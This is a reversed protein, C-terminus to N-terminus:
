ADSSDDGSSSESFGRLGNLLSSLDHHKLEGLGDKKDEDSSSHGFDFNALVDDPIMDHLMKLNDGMSHESDSSGFQNDLAHLLSKVSDADVSESDDSGFNELAGLMASIDTTEKKPGDSDAMARLDGLGSALGKEPKPTKSSDVGDKTRERPVSKERSTEKISKRNHSKKKDGTSRKNDKSSRETRATHLKPRKATDKLDKKKDDEIGDRPSSKREAEIRYRRPSELALTEYREIDAIKAVSKSKISSLKLLVESVTQPHWISNYEKHILLQDPDVKDNNCSQLYSLLKLAVPSINALDVSIICALALLRDNVKSTFLKMQIVILHIIELLSDHFRKPSTLYSDIFFNIIDIACDETTMQHAITASLKTFSSVRIAICEPTRNVNKEGNQIDLLSQYVAVGFQSNKASFYKLLNPLGTEVCCRYGIVRESDDDTMNSTQGQALFYYFFPVLKTLWLVDYNEPGRNCELMEYFPHARWKFVTDLVSGLHHSKFGELLLTDLSCPAYWTRAIEMYLDFTKTDSELQQKSDLIVSLLKLTAYYIRPFVAVSINLVAVCIWFFQIVLPVPQANIHRSISDFLLEIRVFYLPIDSDLGATQIHNLTAVQAPSQEPTSTLKVSARKSLQGSKSANIVQQLKQLSICLNASLKNLLSVPCSVNLSNYIEVAKTSLVNDKELAWTLVSKGWNEEFNDIKLVPPCDVLRLFLKIFLPVPLPQVAWESLLGLDLETALKKADVTSNPGQTTQTPWSPFINAVQFKLKLYNAENIALLQRIVKMNEIRMNSAGTISRAAFADLPREYIAYLAQLVTSLLKVLSHYENDWRLLIYTLIHHLHSYIPEIDGSICENLLNINDMRLNLSEIRKGTSALSEQLGGPLQSPRLTHFNAQALTDVRARTMIGELTINKVLIAIINKKNQKSQDALDVVIRRYFDFHDHCKAILTELIIGSNVKHVSIFSRWLKLVAAPLFGTKNASPVTIVYFLQLILNVYGDETKALTSDMELDINRVWPRLLKILMVQHTHSINPFRDLAEKIVGYSQEKCITSIYDTVTVASEMGREILNSSFRDGLHRIKQGMAMRIVPNEESLWGFQVPLLRMIVEFAKSRLNVDQHSLYFLTLFILRVSYKKVLGHFQLSLFDTAADPTSSAEIADMAFNAALSEKMDMAIGNLTVRGPEPLFQDFIAMAFAHASREASHQKNFQPLPLSASSADVTGGRTLPHAQPTIPNGCEEVHINTSTPVHTPTANSFSNSFFCNFVSEDEFYKALTWRLLKIQHELEIRPIWPEVYSHNLQGPGGILQPNSMARHSMMEPSVAGAHLAAASSPILDHKHIYVGTGKLLGSMALGLLAESASLRTRRMARELFEAFLKKKPIETVKALLRSYEAMDLKSRASDTDHCTWDVLFGALDKHVQADLEFKKHIPTTDLYRQIPGTQAYPPLRHLANFFNRVISSNEVFYDRVCLASLKSYNEVFVAHMDSIFLMFINCVSLARDGAILKNFGKNQSIKHLVKVVACRHKRQEKPKLSSYWTKLASLIFPTASWATASLAQIRTTIIAESDNQLDKWSENIFGSLKIAIQSAEGVSSLTLAAKKESENSQTSQTKEPETTKALEIFPWSSLAMVFINKSRVSPPAHLSHTYITTELLLKRAMVLSKSLVPLADVLLHGLSELFCNWLFDQETSSAISEITAHLPQQINVKYHHVSAKASLDQLFLSRAQQLLYQEHQSILTAIRHYQNKMPASKTLNMNQHFLLEAVELIDLATLRIEFSPSTLGYLAVAEVMSIMDVFIEEDFNLDLRLEVSSYWISSWLDLLMLLQAYLFYQISDRENLYKNLMQVMMKIVICRLDARQIIIKQLFHSVISSIDEDVHLVLSGIFAGNPLTMMAITPLLILSDLLEKFLLDRLNKRPDKKPNKAKFVMNKLFLANGSLLQSGVIPLPSKLSWSSHDEDGEPAMQLFERIQYVPNIPPVSTMLWKEVADNTLQSKEAAKKSFRFLVEAKSKTIVRHVRQMASYLFKDLLSSDAHVSNSDLQVFPSDTPTLYTDVGVREESLLASFDIETQLQSLTSKLHKNFFDFLQNTTENVLKAPPPKEGEEDVWSTLRITGEISYKENIEQSKLFYASGLFKSKPDFMKTFAKLALLNDFIPGSFLVPFLEGTAIDLGHAALQLVFEVMADTPNLGLRHLKGKQGYLARIISKIQDTMKAQLEPTGSSVLACFSYQTTYQTYNLLPMRYDPLPSFSGDENTEHTAHRVRQSPVWYVRKHIYPGRLTILLADFMEDIWKTLADGKLSSKGNLVGKKLIKGLFSEVGTLYNGVPGHALCVAQYRLALSELEETKNLKSIVKEDLTLKAKLTPIEGFTISSILSFLIQLLARTHAKDKSIELHLVIKGFLTAAAERHPATDLCIELFRLRTLLEIDPVQSFLIKQIAESSPLDASIIKGSIRAFVVSWQAIMQMRFINLPAQDLNKAIKKPLLFHNTVKFLKELRSAGLQGVKARFLSFFSSLVDAVTIQILLDVIEKQRENLQNHTIKKVFFAYSCSADNKLVDSTPAGVPLWDIMLDVLLSADFQSSCILEISKNYYSATYPFDVWHEGTDQPAAGENVTQGKVPPKKLLKKSSSFSSFEGDKLFNSYISASLKQQM